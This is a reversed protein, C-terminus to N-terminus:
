RLMPMTAQKMIMNEGGPSVGMGGGGGGGSGPGRPGDIFDAYGRRLRDQLVSSGSQIYPVAMPLKRRILDSKAFRNVLNGGADIAKNVVYDAASRAVPSSGIINRMFSAARGLFPIKSAVRSIGNGISSFLGRGAAGLANLLFSM